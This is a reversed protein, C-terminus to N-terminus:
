RPTPLVECGAQSLLRCLAILPLGELATPDNGTLREFLAIGLGECKFSGACDYPQERQLYTDIEPTSLHRFEVTFPEVHVLLTDQFRCAVTVATHFLVERGSCWRLQQAAVAQSGPKGLVRDNLTAVQDSGIVLAAPHRDAVALAKATALRMAMAAPSENQSREESIEPPECRFRLQLRELLAKRYQSTSALIIEM